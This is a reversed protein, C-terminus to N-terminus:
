GTLTRGLFSVVQTSVMLLVLGIAANQVMRRASHAKETEGQSTLFNFSAWFMMVLAVIVGLSVVIELIAIGIAGVNGATDAANDPFSGEGFVLCDGNDNQELYKHWTPIGLISEEGCAASATQQQVPFLVIMSTALIVLLALHRVVDKVSRTYMRM